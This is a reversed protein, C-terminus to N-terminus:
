STMEVDFGGEHGEVVGGGERKEARRGSEGARIGTSGRFLEGLDGIPDRERIGSDSVTEVFSTLEEVGADERIGGADRLGEAVACGDGVRVEDGNTAAM